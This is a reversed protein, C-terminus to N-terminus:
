TRRLRLGGGVLEAHEGFSILRFYAKYASPSRLGHRLAALSPAGTAEVLFRVFQSSPAAHCLYDLALLRHGEPDDTAYVDEFNEPYYFVPRGVSRGLAEVEPRRQLLWDRYGSDIMYQPCTPNPIHPWESELLGDLGPWFESYAWPPPTGPLDRISRAGDMQGRASVLPKAAAEEACALLWATSRRAKLGVVSAIAEKADEVSVCAPAQCLYGRLDLLLPRRSPALGNIIHRAADAAARRTDDNGCHGAELLAFLIADQLVVAPRRWGAPPLLLDVTAGHDGEVVAVTDSRLGTAPLLTDIIDLDM